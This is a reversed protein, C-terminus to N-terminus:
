MRCKITDEDLCPLDAFHSSLTVGVFVLSNLPGHAGLDKYAFLSIRCTFSIQKSGWLGHLRQSKPVALAMLGM